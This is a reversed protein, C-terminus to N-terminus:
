FRYEREPVVLAVAPRAVRSQPEIMQQEAGCDPRAQHFGTDVAAEAAFFAGAVVRRGPNHQLSRRVDDRRAPVWIEFLRVAIM